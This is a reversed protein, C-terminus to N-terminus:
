NPGRPRRQAILKAAAAELFDLEKESVVQDAAKIQNDSYESRGRETDGFQRRMLARVLYEEKDKFEPPFPVGVRRLLSLGRHM